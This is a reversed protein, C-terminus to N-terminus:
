RGSIAHLARQARRQLIPLRLRDAAARADQATLLAEQPRGLRALSEALDALLQTQQILDAREAAAERARTHEALGGAHDGLRVLITALTSRASAEIRLDAAERVLEVAQRAHGSAVEADGLDRYAEAFLRCTEAQNLRDGLAQHM